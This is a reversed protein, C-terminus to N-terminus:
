ITGVPKFPPSQCHPTTGVQMRTLLGPASGWPFLVAAERHHRLAKNSCLSHMTIKYDCPIHSGPSLYLLLFIYVLISHSDLTNKSVYFVCERTSLWVKVVSWSIVQFSDSVSCWNESMHLFSVPASSVAMSNLKSVPQPCDEEM